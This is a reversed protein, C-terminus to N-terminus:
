SIYDFTFYNYSKKYMYMAYLYMDANYTVRPVTIKCSYLIINSMFPYFYMFTNRVDITKFLHFRLMMSM